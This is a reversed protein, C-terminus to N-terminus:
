QCRCSADSSNEMLEIVQTFIKRRKLEAIETLKLRATFLEGSM